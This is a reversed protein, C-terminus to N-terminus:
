AAREGPRLTTRQPVPQPLPQPAPAPTMAGRLLDRIETLLQEQKTPEAGKKTKILWGLFRTLFLFMLGAILLFNVVEGLFAGYHIEKGWLVIKWDIHSAARPEIMSIIPMIINKVLSNIIGAFATGIIMGVAMDVVGGKFAFERFEDWLSFVKKAPQSEVIHKLTGM